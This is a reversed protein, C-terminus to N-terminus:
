LGESDKFKRSYRVDLAKNMLVRAKEEDNDARELAYPYKRLVFKEIENRTAPDIDIDYMKEADSIWQTALDTKGPGFIYSGIKKLIKTPSFDKVDPVGYSRIFYEEKLAERVYEKLIKSM